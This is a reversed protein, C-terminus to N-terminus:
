IYVQPVTASLLRAGWQKAADKPLVNRVRIFGDKLLTSHFSAAQAATLMRAASPPTSSLTSSTKSPTQAGLAVYIIVHLLVLREM